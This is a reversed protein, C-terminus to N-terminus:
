QCDTKFPGDIFPGHQQELERAHPLYDLFLRWAYLALSRDVIVDFVYPGSGSGPQHYHLIAPVQDLRTRTCHQGAAVGRRFDLGCCKGLLWAAVQGKLRFVACASSQNSLTSFGTQVAAALQAQLQEISLYESFLLWEKPALCMVSPDQGRAQNIRGPLEIGKDILAVNLDAHVELSHLRLLSVSSLQILEFNDSRHTFQQLGAQELASDFKIATTNM